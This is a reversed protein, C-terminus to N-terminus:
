IITFINKELIFLIYKFFKCNISILYNFQKKILASLILM